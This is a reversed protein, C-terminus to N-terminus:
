HSAPLSFALHLLRSLLRPRFALPNAFISWGGVLPLLGRPGLGSEWSEEWCGGCILVDGDNVVWEWEENWDSEEDECSRTEGVVISDGVDEAM